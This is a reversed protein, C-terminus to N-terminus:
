NGDYGNGGWGKQEELDNLLGGREAAPVCSLLFIRVTRIPYGKYLGELFRTCLYVIYGSYPDGANEREAQEVIRATLHGGDAKGIQEVGYALLRGYLRGSQELKKGEVLLSKLGKQRKTQQLHICLGICHAIEKRHEAFIKESHSLAERRMHDLKEFLEWEARFTERQSEPPSFHTDEEIGKFDEFFAGLEERVAQKKEQDKWCMGDVANLAAFSVKLYESLMFFRKSRNTWEKALRCAQRLYDLGEAPRIEYLARYLHILLVASYERNVKEHYLEAYLIGKRMHELCRDPGGVGCFCLMFQWDSYYYVIYYLSESTKYKKWFAMATEEYIRVVDTYEEEKVDYCYSVIIRHCVRIVERYNKESQERLLARRASVYDHFVERSLYLAM